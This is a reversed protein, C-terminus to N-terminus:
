GMIPVGFLSGHFYMVVAALVIGGAVAAADMAARPPKHGILTRGRASESIFDVVAYVAFAGFLIISRRDGNAALHAIAWLLTGILMPHKLKYRIYGPMNAAALLIFALPVLSMALHRGWAPPDYVVEYPAQKWGFVILVLGALAVLSFVTKYGKEGLRNFLGNRLPPVIPLSHIGLFLVLGIILLTM